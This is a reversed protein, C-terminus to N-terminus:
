PSHHVSRGGAAPARGSACGSRIRDDSAPRRVRRGVSAGPHRARAPPEQPRPQDGVSLPRRHQPRLPRQDDQLRRPGGGPIGDAPRGAPVAGEGARLGPAPLALEAPQDPHRDAGVGANRRVDNRQLGGCGRAECHHGDHPHPRGPVSRREPFLAHDTRAGQRPPPSPLGGGDFIGVSRGRHGVPRAGSQQLVSQEEPQGGLRHNGRGRQAVPGASARSQRRLRFPRVAGRSRGGPSLHRLHPVARAPRDEHRGSGAGGVLAAVIRPDARDRVSRLGRPAGFLDLEFRFDPSRRHSREPGARALREDADGATFRRGVRRRGAPVASVAGIVEPLHSRLVTVVAPDFQIGSWAEILSCAEEPSKRGRWARDSTLAEFSDAVALIRAALPIEEGRLGDPYGSGDWREHHHRVAPLVPYPFHVNALIDAAVAPHAKVKQYEIDSLKGPKNLLHDPIALKGIDHLLSAARVAEYDQRAIRLRRALELAYAQVRRTHGQTHPDKADIALTLAEITSLHVQMLDDLRKLNETVQRKYSRYVLVALLLIPPVMVSSVIGIQGILLLSMAAAATGALAAGAAAVAMLYLRGGPGSIQMNEKHQETAHAPRVAEGSPGAPETGRRRGGAQGPPSPAPCLATPSM